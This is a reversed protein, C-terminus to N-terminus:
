EDDDKLLRFRTKLESPPEVVCKSCMDDWDPRPDKAWSYFVGVDMANTKVWRINGLWDKHKHAMQVPSYWSNGASLSTKHYEQKLSWDDVEFLILEKKKSM